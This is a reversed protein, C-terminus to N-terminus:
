RKREKVTISDLTDFFGPFVADVSESDNIQMDGASVLGAVAFAQAIMPQAHTVIETAKLPRAGDIVFGEPYEGVKAGLGRLLSVLHSILDVDECRRLAEVDRIIFEGETQTALVALLPVLDLLRLARKDAVRTGKLHSGKVILDTAGDRDVLEVEGKIQRLLDLFTRNQPRIAVREITLESRGVILAAVVFPLAQVLDGPLDVPSAQPQGATRIMARLTPDDRRNPEVSVGRVTLQDDVRDKSSAPQRLVTVEGAEAYLGGCLLALKTDVDLDAEEYDVAVPAEVGDVVVVTPAELRGVAGSRALLSFLAQVPESPEADIHITRPTPQMALLAIPLLVEAGLGSLDIPEETAKLGRLGAGHITVAGEEEDAVVGLSRLQQVHRSLVPPVHEIRSDGESIAALWIARLGEALEGPVRVQGSIKRARNVIRQM